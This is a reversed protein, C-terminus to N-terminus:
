GNAEPIRRFRLIRLDGFDASREGPRLLFRVGRRYVNKKVLEMKADFGGQIGKVVVVDMGVVCERHSAALHFRYHQGDDVFNTLRFTMDVFGEESFQDLIPNGESDVQIDM